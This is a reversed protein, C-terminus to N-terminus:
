LNTGSEFIFILDALFISSLNFYGQMKSSCKNTLVPNKYTFRWIESLGLLMSKIVPISLELNKQCKFKLARVRRLSKPNVDLNSVLYSVDVM